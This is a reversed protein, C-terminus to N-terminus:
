ATLAWPGGPRDLRPQVQGPSGRDRSAWRAGTGDTHGGRTPDAGGPGGSQTTHGHAAPSTAHGPRASGQAQLMAGSGPLGPPSPGAARLQRHRAAPPGKPPQPPPAAERGRGRSGSGGGWSLAAETERTRRQGSLARRHCRRQVADPGDGGWCGSVQSTGPGGLTTSASTAATLAEPPGERQQLGRSVEPFWPATRGGGAEGGSPGPRSPEGSLRSRARRHTSADM